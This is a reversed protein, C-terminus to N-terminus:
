LQCWLAGQRMISGRVYSVSFAEMDDADVAADKSKQVQQAAHLNDPADDNGHSTLSNPLSGNSARHISELNDLLMMMMMMMMMIMMMVMMRVIQEELLLAM